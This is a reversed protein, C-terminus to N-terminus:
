SEATFYSLVANKQAILCCTITIEVVQQMIVWFLPTIVSSM